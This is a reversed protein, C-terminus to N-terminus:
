LARETPTEIYGPSSPSLGKQIKLMLRVELVSVLIGICIQGVANTILVKPAQWSTCFLLLLGRFTAFSSAPRLASVFVSHGDRTSTGALGLFQGFEGLLYQDALFFFFISM